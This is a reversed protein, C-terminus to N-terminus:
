MLGLVGDYFERVNRRLVSIQDAHDSRELHEIGPSGNTLRMLERDLTVTAADSAEAYPVYAFHQLVLAGLVGAAIALGHLTASRVDHAVAADVGGRLAVALLPWAAGGAVMLVLSTIIKWRGAALVLTLMERVAAAGKVPRGRRPRARRRGPRRGRVPRGPPPVAPRVR